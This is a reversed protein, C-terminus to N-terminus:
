EIENMDRLKWYCKATNYVDKIADHAGDIKENFLTSYLEKLKPYKNDYLNALGCFETTSKMTCIKHMKPVKSLFYSNLYYNFENFGSRKRNRVHLAKLCNLDYDINHGILFGIEYESDLISFLSKMHYDIEEEYSAFFPTTATAYIEEICKGERNKINIGSLVKKEDLQLLEKVEPKIEWGEPRIYKESAAIRKGVSDCCLTSIQIIEPYAEPNLEPDLYDEPLGNTEVDIFFYFPEQYLGRLTIGVSVSRRKFAYDKSVFNDYLSGTFNQGVNFLCKREIINRLSDNSGIWKPPVSPLKNSLFKYKTGSIHLSPPLVIHNEWRLELHDFIDKFEQKPFFAVNNGASVDYSHEKSYVIIHFGKGSGTKVVWEYDEPLKFEKLLMSVFEEDDCGDIDISRLNNVGMVTGLGTAKEWDHSLLDEMSQIKSVLHAYDHSSAKLTYEFENSENIIRKPM